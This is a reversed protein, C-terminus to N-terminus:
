QREASSNQMSPPFQINLNEVSLKGSILRPLLSDKTKELLKISSTLNEIQDILSQIFDGFMDILSGAPLLVKNSYAQNRNLGPVASDNNIFNMSKLIYFVFCNPLSTKVYYVTDIPFFGIKSWHISGVNGKRGVIIGGNRVLTENHSGVIGSSGYVPYKGDIRESAKLAKGYALEIINDLTKVEWGKPIGKEFAATKYGPFRFCIFWERYIEEAM